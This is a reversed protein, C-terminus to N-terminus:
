GSLIMVYDCCRNIIDDFAKADDSASRRRLRRYPVNRARWCWVSRRAPGVSAHLRQLIHYPLLPHLHNRPIHASKARSLAVSAHVAHDM